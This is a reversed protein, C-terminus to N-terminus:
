ARGWHSRSGIEVIGANFVKSPKKLTADLRALRRSWNEYTMGRSRCEVVERIRTSIHDLSRDNLVYAKVVGGVSIPNHRDTCWIIAQNEDMLGSVEVNFMNALETLANLDSKNFEVGSIMVYKSSEPSVLSKVKTM